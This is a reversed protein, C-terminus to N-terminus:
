KQFARNMQKTQSTQETHKSFLLQRISALHSLLVIPVVVSPLWVFPFYLVAVNPQNFALKQFPTPLSLIAIAVINLLLMLCAINWGLLVTRSFKRRIFMGYFFALASLGSLVDFNRGEFTMLQPVTHHLYLALLVVEVLVRVSHLLTLIQLDLADLFRRGRRTSFLLIISLLPLGLLLAFRAPQVPVNSYFGTRAILAQLLMWSLLVLLLPKSYHAAKYFFAVAVFTACVFLLSIYVPIEPEMNHQKPQVFSRQNFRM